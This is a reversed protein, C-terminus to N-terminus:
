LQSDTNSLPFIEMSKLFHFANRERGGGGGRGFVGDGHQKLLEQLEDVDYM